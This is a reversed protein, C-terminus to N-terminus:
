HVEFAGCYQPKSNKMASRSKKELEDAWKLLPTLTKKYPAGSDLYTDMGTSPGSTASILAGTKLREKVASFQQEIGNRNIQLDVREIDRVAQTDAPLDPAKPTVIKKLEENELITKLRQLEEASLVGEASRIKPRGITREDRKEVAYKGDQWVVVCSGTNPYRRVYQPDQTTAIENINRGLSQNNSEIELEASSRQLRLLTPITEGNTTQISVIVGSLVLLMVGSFYGLANRM